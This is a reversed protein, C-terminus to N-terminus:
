LSEAICAIFIVWSEASFDGDILSAFCVLLVSYRGDVVIINVIENPSALPVSIVLKLKLTTTHLTLWM